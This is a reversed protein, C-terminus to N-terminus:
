KKFWEYGRNWFYGFEVEDGEKFVREVMQIEVRLERVDSSKM